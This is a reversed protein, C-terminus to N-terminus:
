DGIITIVVDRPGGHDRFECLFIGQWTGLNLYSDTVPITLTSGLMVSKAHAPMDDSGEATHMYYPAGEPAVRNLIETLDRRVDPDANETLTLAASTHKLFINMIGKQPLPPLLRVIESTILHLGKQRPALRIEKQLIM